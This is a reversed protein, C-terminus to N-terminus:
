VYEPHAAVNLIIPTGDSSLVKRFDGAAGRWAAHM